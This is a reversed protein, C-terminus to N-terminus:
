QLNLQIEPVEGVNCYELFDRLTRALDTPNEFQELPLPKAWKDAYGERYVHIHPCDVVEGDPNRHPPGDLDVRVLIEMAKYREQYTCKSLRIRGRNVDFQFREKKDLTFASWSVKEGPPPFNLLSLEELRKPAHILFDAEAQLLM